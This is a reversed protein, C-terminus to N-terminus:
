NNAFRYAAYEAIRALQTGDGYVADEEAMYERLQDAISRDACDSM